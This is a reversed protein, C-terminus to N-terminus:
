FAGYKGLPPTHRRILCRTDAEPYKIHVGVNEQVAKDCIKQTHADPKTQSLVRLDFMYSLHPELFAHSM